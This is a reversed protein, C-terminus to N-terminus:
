HSSGGRPECPSPPMERSTARLPEAGRQGALRQAVRDGHGAQAAQDAACGKAACRCNSSRGEQFHASREACMSSQRAAGVSVILLARKSARGLEPRSTITAM